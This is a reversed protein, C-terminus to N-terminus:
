DILGHSILTAIIQDVAARAEQDIVTGGSPSPVPAQRQGVVQQGAVLIRAVPLEGERWAVGDRHIWLGAAKNWAAMGPQASVFRWGGATWGALEGEHGNWDGTAGPGVIWCQGIAPTAPPVALPGEEVAAQAIMDLQTLAENHFLEKQAQGPLIFPLAFRATADSM